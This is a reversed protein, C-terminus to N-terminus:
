EDSGIVSGVEAVVPKDDTVTVGAVGVIEMLEVGVLGENPPVIVYVAVTEPNNFAFAGPPVREQATETSGIPAPDLEEVVQALRDPGNGPNVDVCVFNVQTTVAEGAPVYETVAVYM